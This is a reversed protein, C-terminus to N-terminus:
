LEDLLRKIAWKIAEQIGYEGGFDFDKATISDKDIIIKGYKKIKM